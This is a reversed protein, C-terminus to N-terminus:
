FDFFPLVFRNTNGSATHLKIIEIMAKEEKYNLPRLAKKHEVM